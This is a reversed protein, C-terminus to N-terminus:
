IYKLVTLSVKALEARWVQERAAKEEASLTDAPQQTQVSDYAQSGSVGSYFNDDGIATVFWIVECTLFRWLIILYLFVLLSM